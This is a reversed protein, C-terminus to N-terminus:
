ARLRAGPGPQVHLDRPGLYEAGCPCQVALSVTHGCGQHQIRVPPGDPDTLYADGWQMLAVLVPQVDWGKQTLLYEGRTRQGEDRYSRTEMIGALVLKRLRNALVARTLGVHRQFDQFRRVGNVADRLILLTWKDGLVHLSRQVSCNETSFDLWNVIRVTGAPTSLPVQGDPTSLEGYISLKAVKQSPM